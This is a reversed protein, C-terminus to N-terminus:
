ASRVSWADTGDAIRFGTDLLQRLRSEAEIGGRREAALRVAGAAALGALHPLPPLPDLHPPAMSDGALFVALAACGAPCALGIREAAEQAAYAKSQDPALVWAEAAELAPLERPSPGGGAELRAARCAWWATARRSLAQALVGVAAELLGAGVLARAAAIMSGGTLSGDPQGLFALVPDELEIRALRGRAAENTPFTELTTSDM